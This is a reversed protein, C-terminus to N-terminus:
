ESAGQGNDVVTTITLTEPSCKKLARKEQNRLILFVIFFCIFSAVEFVLQLGLYRKRLLTNDYYRCSANNDCKREWLLCTSDIVRGYLAPCPMWALVRLLMFQIGIALSKHEQEVSRLILIFSPTKTTSAIFAGICSLVVFPVLLYSCGSGCSGPQASGESGSGPICSCQTYNLVKNETLAFSVDECGAYCPSIYEIGDYGCIPNYATDSCHCKSNCKSINQGVEESGVPVHGPAYFTQTPCGLFFIPLAIAICLALVIACMAGCQKLSMQFKKIVAGGVVIGAMATPIHIAGMILNAMSATISFQREMYKAMFVMIGAVMASLMVQALIVLLFVPKKLNKVLVKPFLKIFGMLSLHQYIKPNPKCESILDTKPKNDTEKHLEEEEKQMEKPFFFIPLATLGVVTGAVLFGMWWAGVWRPDKPTLVIDAAPLKDIDVYYRLIASGLMFAAGPGMFAVAYLIGIYFPSNRKSAFDDIYSIGFPQIPVGGVGLLFQGIFLFYIVHLTGKVSQNTCSSNNLVRSTGDLQCIDTLNSSVSAFSQDYEYPGVMFHPLSMIFAAVCIVLAGCGIVRPRHVRSGFYSVFVILTVNGIENFSALLGSMQSSFGFRKEITSISSKLYGSVLLQSLQLLGHCCVFFKISSFPNKSCTKRKQDACNKPTTAEM